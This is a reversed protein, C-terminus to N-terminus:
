PQEYATYLLDDSPPTLGLHRVFDKYTRWAEDATQQVTIIAEDDTEAAHTTALELARVSGVVRLMGNFASLGGFRAQSWRFALWTFVLILLSTSIATMTNLSPSQFEADFYVRLYGSALMTVIFVFLPLLLTKFLASLVPMTTRPTDQAIAAKVQAAYALIETVTPMTM